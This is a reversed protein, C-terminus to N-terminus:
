PSAWIKNRCALMAVSSLLALSTIWIMTYSSTLDLIAGFMPPAVLMGLFFLTYIRGTLAEIRDRGSEIMAANVLVMWSLFAGGCAIAGAVAWSGAVGAILLLGPILAAGVAMSAFSPGAGVTRGYVAGWGWRAFIGALGMVGFMRGAAVADFGLEDTLYLVSYLYIPSIGLAVLFTSTAFWGVALRPRPASTSGQDVHSVTADSPGHTTRQRAAVAEAALLAALGFVAATLFTPRWGWITSLPVLGIGALLGATPVSSQVLGVAVGHGTGLSAILGNAAPMMGAAGVGNAFSLCLLGLYRQGLLPVLALSVLQLGFFIALSRRPGMNGALRASRASFAAAGAYYASVLSGLESGSLGLDTILLPALAGLALPLLVSVTMCGSVTVGLAVSPGLRSRGPLASGPKPGGIPALTPHTV